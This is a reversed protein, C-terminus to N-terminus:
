NKSSFNQQLVPLLLINRFDSKADNQNDTQGCDEFYRKQQWLVTDFGSGLMKVHLSPSQCQLASTAVKQWNTAFKNYLLNYFQQSSTRQHHQVVHGYGTDMYHLKPRISHVTIDHSVPGVAISRNLCLIRRNPSSSYKFNHLWRPDIPSRRAWAWAQGQCVRFEGGHPEVEPHCNSRFQTRSIPKIHDGTTEATIHGQTHTTHNSM